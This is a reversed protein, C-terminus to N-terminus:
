LVLPACLKRHSAHVQLNLVPGNRPQIGVAGIGAHMARRLDALDRGRQALESEVHGAKDVVLALQDRAVPPQQRGLFQIEFAYRHDPQTVQRGHLGLGEPQGIILQREVRLPVQHKQLGLQLRQVLGMDVQLRDAEVLLLQGFQFRGGGLLLASSSSTSILM